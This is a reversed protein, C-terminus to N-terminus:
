SNAEDNGANPAAPKTEEVIEAEEFAPQTTARKKTRSRRTTKQTTETTKNNYTDNFDVLEIFALSANDGARNGLKIIRSYGGNRSAVKPGVVTFLEKVAEKNQLYSFVVRHQHSISLTDLAYKTKTILPEVYVRLAKAKALTTVIRKHMILQSGLNRLLADRHAKTRSLNKQKDGHRM